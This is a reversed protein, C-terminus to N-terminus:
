LDSNQYKRKKRKKVAQSLIYEIQSNLSRFDDEAWSTLEAFLTESLRLPIQKRKKEEM